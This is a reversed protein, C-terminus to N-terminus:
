QKRPFAADVVAIAAEYDRQFLALKELYSISGAHIQSQAINSWAATLVPSHEVDYGDDVAQNVREHLQFFTANVVKMAADEQDKEEPTRRTKTV